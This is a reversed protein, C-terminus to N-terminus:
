EEIFGGSQHSWLNAYIGKQAILEKHTGDEVVVGDDLVIIRDLKAITSLRHAIVISTKNKMLTELSEQILKESESDLASTAEDLILIPANKLIARAIAVRQRQGGSLKVGREGVVTDLGNPLTSIFEYANAQKTADLVEKDTADKKGYAINERLTRHFLYPDQPVYSISNRLSEQTVDSIVQDDILIAGNEIDAYRLLLSTLTTKGGGSRGVLGVRQGAPIVLNLKKFVADGADDYSFDVDKLTINGKSVSLKKSASKDRVDPSKSLIETIKSSDLFAQESMRVISSINFMSGTIRGLYTIIFILASISLMSSTYLVVCLGITIIQFTFLVGQRVEANQQLQEIEKAAVAEIAQRDKVLRSVEAQQQGFLRVLTNNGIVDAITGFLKSQMDKRQNRYTARGQMSRLSHIVVFATLILLPALMVPAMIAIIILSTVFNVAISSFQLFVTDLISLYSRSFTNVDGALSGVKQNAFFGHSHRLLGDVARRTLRTTVHEEHTFLAIFGYHNIILTAISTVAMGGLLWLPTTLNHPEVILSQTVLSILLPLLLIYLFHGFPIM